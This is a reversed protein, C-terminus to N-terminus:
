VSPEKVKRKYRGKLDPKVTERRLPDFRTYVRAVSTQLIGLIFFRM